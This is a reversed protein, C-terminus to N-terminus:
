YIHMHDLLSELSEEAEDIYEKNPRVLVAVVVDNEENFAFIWYQYEGYQNSGEAYTIDWEDNYTYVNGDYLPTSMTQSYLTDKAEDVDLGDMSYVYAPFEYEGYQDSFVMYTNDGYEYKYEPPVVFTVKGVTMTVTISDYQSAQEDYFDSYAEDTESDYDSAFNGDDDYDYSYDDDLAFNGDDDYDHSYDNDYYQQAYEDTIMDTMFWTFIGASGIVGATILLTITLVVMAFTKLTADIAGIVIGTIAKGKSSKHKVLSVIGTIVAAVGTLFGPILILGAFSLIMSWLPLSSKKQEM